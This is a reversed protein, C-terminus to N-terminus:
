CVSAIAATGARCDAEAQRWADRLDTVIALAEGLLAQDDDLSAETLKAYLWNYLAYLGGALEPAAGADLASLLVALIRQTRVIDQCQEYHEGRSMADLARHLHRVMTDFLLVVQRRPDATLAETAQYTLAPYVAASMAM